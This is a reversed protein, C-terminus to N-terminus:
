TDKIKLLTINQIIWPNEQFDDISFQFIIFSLKLIFCLCLM